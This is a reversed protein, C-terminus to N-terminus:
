RTAAEGLRELKLHHRKLIEEAGPLTLAEYLVQALIELGSGEHVAKAGEGADEFTLSYKQANSQLLDVRHVTIDNSSM